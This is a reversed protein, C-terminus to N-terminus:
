WTAMVQRQMAFLEQAAEYLRMDRQNHAIIIAITENDLEMTGCKSPRGANAHKLTCGNPDEVAGASALSLNQALVPFVRGIMDITEVIEDTLGILTFKHRLNYLAEQILAEEEAPALSLNGEQKYFSTLLNATQHNLLQRDCTGKNLTSTGNDIREYIELISMCHYCSPAFRYMSWVRDVPHRIVTFKDSDGWGYREVADLPACYSMVAPTETQCRRSSNKPFSLAADCRKVGGGCESVSYYDLNKNTSKRFRQLACRILSDVSTGGTKMHHMHMFQKPASSVNWSRPTLRRAMQEMSVSAPPAVGAGAPTAVDGDPTVVAGAAAGGKATTGAIGFWLVILVAVMSMAVMLVKGCVSQGQNKDVLGRLASGPLKIGIQKDMGNVLGANEGFIIEDSLSDSSEDGSGYENGSGSMSNLEIDDVDM